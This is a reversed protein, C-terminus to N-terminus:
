IIERHANGIDITDFFIVALKDGEYAASFSYTDGIKEKWSGTLRSSEHVHGHLTLFPKMKKIFRKIAISGVNVDYQVHDFKKDDLDARDLNTKYPPSHFLYITKRPDSKKSLLILDDLITKYKENNMDVKVSRRGEEPSICGPDVYRSVDYREWDKLIFPSPPIYSYGAVFLDHFISAKNNVYFLLNDKEAKILLNEYIKPDDNGLIIFFNSMVGNKKLVKIKNLFIKEFFNSIDALLGNPFIDGGIFVGEPREKKIIKFLTDFKAINGHLDSVFLCKM